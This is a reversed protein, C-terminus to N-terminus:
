SLAVNTADYMCDLVHYLVDCLVLDESMTFVRAADWKSSLDAVILLSLLQTKNLAILNPKRGMFVKM